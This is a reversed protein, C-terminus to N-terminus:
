THLVRREVRRTQGMALFALGALGLCSWFSFAGQSAPVTSVSRAIFSSLTVTTPPPDFGFDYTHRNAGAGETTFQVTSYDAHIGGNDGDSDHLDTGQDPPAPVAGSPLSPDTLSIRLEYATNPEVSNGGTMNTDNVGGCYYNGNADTTATGVQTDAIGDDNTDAWLGVDVGAINAEEPDQIGDQLDERLSHGDPM